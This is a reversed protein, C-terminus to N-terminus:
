YGYGNNADDNDDENNDDVIIGIKPVYELNERGHPSVNDIEYTLDQGAQIEDQHEGDIWYDSDTVDYVYGDVAVYADRGDLGDYEALEELTFERLEDNDNDNDNDNYDNGNCAALLFLGFLLLSALLTKKM